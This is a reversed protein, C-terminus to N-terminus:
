RVAACGVSWSRLGRRQCARFIAPCARRCASWSKRKLSPNSDSQGLRGIGAALDSDVSALMPKVDAAAKETQMSDIYKRGLASRMDAETLALAHSESHAAADFREILARADAMQQTIVRHKETATVFDVRNKLLAVELASLQPQYALVKEQTRFLVIPASWNRNVAYHGDFVSVVDRRCRDASSDIGDHDSVHFCYHKSLAQLEYVSKNEKERRNRRREKSRRPPVTPARM